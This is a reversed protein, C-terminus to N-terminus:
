HCLYSLHVDAGQAIEKNVLSIHLPMFPIFTRIESQVWTQPSKKQSPYPHRKFMSMHQQCVFIHFKPSWVLDWCVFSQLIVRTKFLSVILLESMCTQAVILDPSQFDDVPPGEAVFMVSQVDPQGAKLFRKLKNYIHAIMAIRIRRRHHRRLDFIMTALNQILGFVSFHGCWSLYHLVNRFVCQIFNLFLIRNVRKKKFDNQWCFLVQFLHFYDLVKQSSWRRARRTRLLKLDSTRFLFSPLAEEQSWASFQEGNLGALVLSRHVSNNAGCEVDNMRLFSSFSGIPFLSPSTFMLFSAFLISLHFFTWDRLM